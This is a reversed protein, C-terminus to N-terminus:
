CNLLVQTITSLSVPGTTRPLTTSREEDKISTRQDERTDPVSSRRRASARSQRLRDWEEEPEEGQDITNM